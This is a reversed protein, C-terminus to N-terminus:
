QHNAKNQAEYQCQEGNSTPGMTYDRTVMICYLYNALRPKFYQYLDNDQIPEYWVSEHYPTADQYQIPTKGWNKYM